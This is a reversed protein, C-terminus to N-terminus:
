GTVRRRKSMWGDKKYRVLCQSCEGEEDKQNHINVVRGCLTPAMPSVNIAGLALQHISMVMFHKM